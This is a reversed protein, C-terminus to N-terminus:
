KKIGLGVRYITDNMSHALTITYTYSMEVALNQNGFYNQTPFSNM